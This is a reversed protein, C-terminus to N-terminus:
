LAHGSFAMVARARRIGAFYQLLVDPAQEVADLRLAAIELADVGELLPDLFGEINRIEQRKRFYQLDAAIEPGGGLDKQHVADLLQPRLKGVGRGEFFKLLFRTGEQKLVLWAQDNLRVAAVRDLEPKGNSALLGGGELLLCLPCDGRFELFAAEGGR